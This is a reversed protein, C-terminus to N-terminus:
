APSHLPGWTALSAELVDCLEATSLCSYTDVDCEGFRGSYHRHRVTLCWGDAYYELRMLGEVIPEFSSLRM